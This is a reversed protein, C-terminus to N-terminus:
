SDAACPVVCIDVQVAVPVWVGRGRSNCCDGVCITGHGAHAACAGSTRIDRVRDPDSDVLEEGGTVDDVPVASEDAAEFKDFGEEDEQVTGGVDEEFM